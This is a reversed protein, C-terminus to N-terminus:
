TIIELLHPLLREPTLKWLSESALSPDLQADFCVTVIVSELM